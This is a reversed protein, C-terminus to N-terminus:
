FWHMWKPWAAVAIGVGTSVAILGLLTLVILVRRLTLAHVEGQRALHYVPLGM